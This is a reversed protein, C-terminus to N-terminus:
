IINDPLSQTKGKLFKDFFAEKTMLHSEDETGLVKNFAESAEKQQEPYKFHKLYTLETNNWAIVIISKKNKSEM